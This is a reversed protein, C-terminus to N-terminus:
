GPAPSANEREAKQELAKRVDGALQCMEQSVTLEGSHLMYNRYRHLRDLDGWLPDDIWKQTKLFDMSRRMQTKGRQPAESPFMKRLYHGAMEKLLGEVRNYDALFQELDGTQSGEQGSSLRDKYEMCMRRIKDPDVVALVFWCIFCVALVMFLLTENRVFRYLPRAAMEPSLGRLILASGALFAMLSNVTIVVVFRNYRRKLLEIVDFLTEDKEATAELREMFFIYGTLTIGYLGAIVQIGNSLVQTLGSESFQFCSFICDYIVCGQALLLIAAAVCLCVGRPGRSKLLNWLRMALGMYPRKELWSRDFSLPEVRAQGRRSQRRGITEFRLCGNKMPKEAPMRRCTGNQKPM